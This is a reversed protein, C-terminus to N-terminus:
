SDEQPEAAIRLDPDAYASYTLGLPNGFETLLHHRAQHFAAGLPERRLILRTYFAASFEAALDDPVEIDAGIFGRNDNNLFLWPFSLSSSAAVRSAGCANMVVLPMEAARDGRSFHRDTLDAGLEDLRIGVTRGGGQLEIENGLPDGTGAYCHCAFHQIQDPRRGTEGSLSSRPDWIQDSLSPGGDRGTPFPGEVEVHSAATETFWRLELEAGPLGDHYLFRVALRGQAGLRLVLDQPVPASAFSRRVICSFGAFDRCAEVLQERNGVRREGTPVFVPLYEIPLLAELEGVCEVLPPFRPHRVPVASRWFKQVALVNDRTRFILFMQLMGIGRLRHYVEAADEDAVELKPLADKLDALRQDLSKRAEALTGADPM